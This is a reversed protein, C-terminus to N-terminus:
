RSNLETLSLKQKSPKYDAYNASSDWSAKYSLMTLIGKLLDSINKDFLSLRFSFLYNNLTMSIHKSAFSLCISAKSLTFSSM